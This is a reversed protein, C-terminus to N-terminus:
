WCSRATAAAAAADIHTAKTKVIIKVGCRTLCGSVNVVRHHTNSGFQNLSVPPLPGSKLIHEFVLYLVPPSLSLVM